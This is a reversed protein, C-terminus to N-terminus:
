TILVERESPLTTRKNDLQQVEQQQVLMAQREQDLQSQSIMGRSRLQELRALEAKRVKLKENALKLELINNQIIMDMEQVNTKAALLDAEAQKLSLKYDKDDITLVLTGKALFAGKDLDPHVFTVRGSVEALAELNLDPKVTGYGVISPKTIHSQATIVSVPVAKQAEADHTITPQLKVIAITLLLGITAFAILTWRRTFVHLPM